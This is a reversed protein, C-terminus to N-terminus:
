VGGGVASLGAWPSLGQQTDTLTEATGQETRGKLGWSFVFFPHLSKVATNGSPCGVGFGHPGRPHLVLTLGILLSKSRKPGLCM